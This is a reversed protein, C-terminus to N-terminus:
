EKEWSPIRGPTWPAGAGDLKTELAKLQKQDIDKLEALVPGFLEAAIDYADKQTQTPAGTSRSLGYVVSEVRSLLSPPTEYNRSSLSQDGMLTRQLSKLQGEIKRVESMLELPAEPTQALTSKIIGVRRNLESHMSAAGRIARRLKSVKTQFAVAEARNQAPLSTNELPVVQFSKPGALAQLSDGSFLSMEVTYTGPLVLHGSGGRGRGSTSGGVPATSAHRLNWTMRQLGKKPTTSLRRVVAGSQDKLTFILSAPVEDDEARLEEFSPYPIAQKEKIAKKEAEKRQQKLSKPSDKLYYSFVAGFAPNKAAYVTAGGSGWSSAEVYTLADKIEFIHAKKALVESNVQRLPTYDDLIYFGRGFSALVLDNEREQIEMDRIAIIPLGSKLQTWKKGGDQTVFVGFETGVFLLNPDVHDEEMCYVSGREPLNNAISTWTKGQDTSKMIYPTFDGNKHNNFGAYVTNANHHSARVFNVYTRNPIGPFTGIKRWDKANESVHILGDDTGVYLLDEQIPSEDFAVINGYISTSNHKAIADIGWVKGMVPLENRNLQRSLDGSIAKWTNGRDESRFVKNASFYLRTPSHPSILLPADWNWRYAAEDKGEQPKIPMREGSLRDYRTLVGYQAQSYVINPNEPDVQTEFGDGGQTIFWDSNFIGASRITRSPGGMSSNDQTGGYVYYFPKSNDTSVKYYQTLPLNPHFRWNQAKDFSEYIGGDCGMLYHDPNKPNVWLAHNDVHKKSEGLRTFTKGGDNSVQAYTDMSYIRDIDVPDCFIEQYYLGITQHKGQKSWSAGRNTSRFFGGRKADAEVIAFVYDPNIPSIALGIRGVDGSPLGKMAKNWTEGGDTSKYVASEPGGSIWTHVHRRRQWTAAYLVDPDRPDMVIDSVGTHESTELSIEWTKGGDTSKYLGREGGASWLPGQAAVFIVDSNEPHVIIKGIHESTKLGMNKWSKGGDTSKYIGDGYGVSRQGNNEGTGVWVVHPNQPDLTICGISYSGQKDFIPTYTIGANITKWVGGSAVAAYFEHPKDPNVAFDIIRGSTLAPGINRFKLGSLTSSSLKPQTVTPKTAQEQEQKKKKQAQSSTFILVLFVCLLTTPKM